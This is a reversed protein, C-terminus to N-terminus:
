DVLDRKWLGLLTRTVKKTTRGVGYEYRSNITGNMQQGFLQPELPRETPDDHERQADEMFYAVKM